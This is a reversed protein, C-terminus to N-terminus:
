HISGALEFIPMYMLIVVFGIVLGILAMLIPEFLRTFWDVWRAIEEDHFTAIREMMEGMAGSREGVALMRLGVSTALNNAELALSISQGERISASANALHRRLGPDLLGSAMDLASLIPIGGRLLMGVMRYFRALHYLRLRSGIGPLRWFLEELWRRVDPQRLGYAVAIFMFTLIGLAQLSYKNLMQGWTLLWVSFLPLNTGM